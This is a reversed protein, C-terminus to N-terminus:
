TPARRRRPSRTTACPRSSTRRDGGGVARDAPDGHLGRRTGTKDVKAPTVSDVGPRRAQDPERAQRPGPRQATSKLFQRRSSSSRRSSPARSARPPRSSPRRSADPGGGRGARGGAAGAAAAAQQQQKLEDLSKQDNHAPKAFSRRDPVPRQHGAGFGESLLDYSRRLTTSEPLQGNDEQGLRM